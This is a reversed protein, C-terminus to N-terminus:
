KRNPLTPERKLSKEFTKNLIEAEFPTLSRMNPVVEKTFFQYASNRQKLIEEKSIKELKM